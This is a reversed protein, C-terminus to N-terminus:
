WEDPEDWSEAWFREEEARIEEKDLPEDIEIVGQEEIRRIQEDSLGKPGVERRLRTFYIMAAAVALAAFLLSIYM